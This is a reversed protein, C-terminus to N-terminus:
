AHPLDRVSECHAAPDSRTQSALGLFVKGHAVPHAASENVFVYTTRQSSSLAGSPSIRHALFLDDDTQTCSSDRFNRFAVHQKTIVKRLRGIITSSTWM